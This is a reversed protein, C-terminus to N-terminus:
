LQVLRRQKREPRQCLAYKLQAQHLQSPNRALLNELLILCTRGHGEKATFFCCVFSLVHSVTEPISQLNIGVEHPVQHLRGRPHIIGRIHSKDMSQLCYYSAAMRRTKRSMATTTIRAHFVVQEDRLEESSKKLLDGKGGVTGDGDAPAVILDKLVHDVAAACGVSGVRGDRGDAEM